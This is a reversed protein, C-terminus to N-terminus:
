IGPSGYAGRGGKIKTLIADLPKAPAYTKQKCCKRVTTCTNIKLPNPCPRKVAEVGGGVMKYSNSVTPNLLHPDSLLTLPFFKPAFPNPASLFTSIPSSRRPPTYSDCLM